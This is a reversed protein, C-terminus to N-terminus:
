TLKRNLYGTNLVAPTKQLASIVRGKTKQAAPIIEASWGTM